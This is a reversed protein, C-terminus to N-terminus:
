NGALSPGLDLLLCKISGGGKEFFESVDVTSFPFGLSSIKSRIDQSAQVPLILHPGKPTDLQFSNATFCEADHRSIPILRSGLYKKLREGSEKDMAELYALLYERKAGFAFLATDGHYYRTDTLRVPIVTKGKVIEELVKLNRADSRHSFQYRWPPLGWRPKFGTPVVAGYSFIYFEGCPFFDAEGEFRYPLTGFKFGRSGLFQRYLSTEGARHETLSSLYFTKQSLPIPQYKPYLFGANAPFVTGPHDSQPPLILVNAGSRELTEKFGNWQTLAKKLDVKKRLGWSNRTYPNAGSKIRFHSPDGLLVTHAPM